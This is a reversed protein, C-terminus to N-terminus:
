EIGGTFHHIWELGSADLHRQARTVAVYALNGEERSLPKPTGDETKGPEHFDSAIRVHFWELGKAVHATSIVQSAEETPVCEDLAAIVGPATYEEIVKVLAAMDSGDDLQTFAVVDSWAHFIDLDPHTTHGREQLDLAAKALARLEGTKSTGAIGVKHGAAQARLVERIAGVNTRTLVAEPQRKSAWVSSPADPKGVLRLPSQLRELWCNAEDAIAQGFRFSQTLRTREGGFAEMADEAGRWGYIAQNPDGVVAVQAGTQASIVATMQPSADQAEDFLIYDVDLNPRDLSWLKLYYDHKFPLKGAPDLLDAWYRRALVVLHEGLAADADPLQGLNPLDPVDALSIEDRDSRTFNDVTETALRTLVKKSLFRGTAEAGLDFAETIALHRSKDHWFMYKTNLRAAYGKGVSAFALSHVTRAQVATGHFKRAAETAIAKNFAVYLGRRNPTDRALLQLTSTKGTGAGAEIVINNGTRYADLANLQEDTPSFTSM